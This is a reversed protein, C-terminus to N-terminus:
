GMNRGKAIKSGFSNKMKNWIYSFGTDNLISKITLGSRITTVMTM